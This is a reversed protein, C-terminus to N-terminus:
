EDSEKKLTANGTFSLIRIEPQGYLFLRSSGGANIEIRAAAQVRATASELLTARVSAAEMRDGKVESNDGANIYLRESIGELKVSASEGLDVGMANNVSFFLADTRDTMSLHLSDANVNLDAVSNETMQMDLVTTKLLLKLRSYGGSTITTQDLNLVEPTELYGEDMQISQLDRVYVTIDLKKKATISYFSSIRLTSDQVELKLIDILKDDAEIRYGEAGQEVKIELDDILVLNRFAPLTNEVVVVNRSGKIRPKRQANLLSVSCLLVMLGSLRLFNKCFM